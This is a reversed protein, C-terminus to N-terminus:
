NRLCATNTDTPTAAAPGIGLPGLASRPERTLFVSRRFARDLQVNKSLMPGSCVDTLTRAQDFPAMVRNVDRRM